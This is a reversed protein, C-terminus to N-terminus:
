LRCRCNSVDQADQNADFDLKIGDPIEQDESLVFHDVGDIDMMTRPKVVSMQAAEAFGNSQNVAACNMCNGSTYEEEGAADACDQADYINLVPASYFDEDDEDVRLHDFYECGPYEPYELTEPEQDDVEIKIRKPMGGLDLGHLHPDTEFAVQLERKM